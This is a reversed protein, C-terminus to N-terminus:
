STADIVERKDRKGQAVEEIIEEYQCRGDRWFCYSPYCVPVPYDPYIPCKDVIIGQTSESM